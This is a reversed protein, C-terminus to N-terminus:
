SASRRRVFLGILTGILLVGVAVALIAGNASGDPAAAQAKLVAPPPAAAEQAPRRQDATREPSMKSKKTGAAADDSGVGEGFLSSQSAGSPAQSAGSAPAKSKPAAQSRARDIPIEYEKGSPSQPDVFVEDAQAAAMAPMAALGCLSALLSILLRRHM